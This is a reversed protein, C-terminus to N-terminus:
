DQRLALVPDVAAAALAPRLAAAVAVVLTLVFVAAIALPTMSSQDGALLPWIARTLAFSLGSGVLSGVGVIAVADHLMLRVIASWSAGLAIRVGIEFRRRAATYSVSGYLGTMALVLGVIGLASLFITAIRVPLLVSSLRTAMPSVNIAAGPELVAVTRELERVAGIASGAVRVVLSSPSLAPLYLVAIRNGGFVQVAGDQSVGVIHLRRAERGNEPDRSLVLERDLVDLSGFYRRALTEGVIVPTAPVTRSVDEDRVDRGRLIRIGMTELYRPGVRNVEVALGADDTTDAKHIRDFSFLGVPLDGSSVVAVGPVMALRDRLAFFPLTNLSTPLRMQISLTHAIDFGPDALQQRVMSFLLACAGVLLIFSVAVQGAVLSQGLSWRKLGLGTRPAQIRPGPTFQSATLAPGIGCAVTVVVLLLGCQALSMPTPILDVGANAVLATTQLVTTAVVWLAAGAMCGLTAVVLSEALFQQVLRGRTAGLAIRIAIEHSRQASRALLLGAVNACAVLLVLGVVAYLAGVLTFVIRGAPTELREVVSLRPAISLTRSLGPNADPFRRELDRAVVALAAAVEKRTMGNRLRGVLDFQAASRNELGRNVRPGLPVYVSPSVLPGLMSYVGPPLVGAISYPWGNLYLTRGIVTQDGGLRQWFRYSIVVVNADKITDLRRDAGFTRGHVAHLGLVEFFNDSVVQAGVTTTSDGTRYTLTSSQRAALDVFADNSRVDVYNPYSLGPQVRFLDEPAAATPETQLLVARLVSFVAVNIGVGVGISVTTTALLIPRKALVRIAYRLDQMAHELMPWGDRDRYAETTQLAGGFKLAAARRAEEPSMGSAVNDAAAFDLHASMEDALEQETRRRQFLAAIRALLPRM